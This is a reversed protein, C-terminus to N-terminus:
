YAPHELQRRYHTHGGRRRAGSDWSRRVASVVRSGAALLLGLPGRRLNTVYRSGFRRLPELDLSRIVAAMSDQVADVRAALPIAAHKSAELHPTIIIVM